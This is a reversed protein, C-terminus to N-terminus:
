KKNSRLLKWAEKSMSDKLKKLKNRIKMSDKKNNYYYTKPKHETFVSGGGNGCSSCPIYELEGTPVKAEFTKRKNRLYDKTKDYAKKVNDFLTVGNQFGALFPGMKGSGIKARTFPSPLESFDIPAMNAKGDRGNNEPGNGYVEAGGGDDLTPLPININFNFDVDLLNDFMGEMSSAWDGLDPLPPFPCCNKGAEDVSRGDPDVYKM